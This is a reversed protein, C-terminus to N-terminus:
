LWSDLEIGKSSHRFIAPIGKGRELFLVLECRQSLFIMKGSALGVSLGSRAFVPLGWVSPRGLKSYVNTVSIVSICLM